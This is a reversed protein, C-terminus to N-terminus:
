RRFRRKWAPEPRQMSTATSWPKKPTGRKRAPMSSMALTMSVSTSRAPM